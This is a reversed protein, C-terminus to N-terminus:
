EEWPCIKAGVSAPVPSGEPPAASLLRRWTATGSGHVPLVVRVRELRCCCTGAVLVWLSLLLM